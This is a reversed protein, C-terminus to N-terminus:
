PTPSFPAFWATGLGTSRGTFTNMGFHVFMPLEDEQWALQAPSPIPLLPKPANSSEAQSGLCSLGLGLGLIFRAFGRRPLEHTIQQM